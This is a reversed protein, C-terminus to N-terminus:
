FAEGGGSWEGGHEFPNRAGHREIAERQLRLRRAALLRRSASRGATALADGCFHKRRVRPACADRRRENRALPGREWAFSMACCTKLFHALVVESLLFQACPTYYPCCWLLLSVMLILVRAVITTRAETTVTAGHRVTRWVMCLGNPVAAHGCM